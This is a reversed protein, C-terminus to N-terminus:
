LSWEQGRQEDRPAASENAPALITTANLNAPQVFGGAELRKHMAVMLANFAEFLDGFEDRRQHSIRFDLDGGAADRLALRLQRVPGLIWKTAAITLGAVLVLTLLGLGIMMIRSILAAQDLATRLVSVEVAGVHHGAYEIPRTFRFSQAGDSTRMTTVTVETSGSEIRRGTPELYRAGVLDPTSAAQIVGEHDVILMQTVNPDEAAAMVFARTPLWDRQEPPLGVNEAATLAANSAVFSAISAGSTLAVQEMAAYQRDLVFGIGLALVAATIATTLLAARAPLPLRRKGGDAQTNEFAAKERQLAELLAAGSAFRKEPRKSLLKEIIFRLGAPCEPSVQIPAPDQQTIQLALTAASAGNFAPGGTILEYLLAGVSFLDSRGDLERGLAQEPSMYRPTGVVQGIQTRVMEAAQTETCQEIRAIGFDLIKLTRGDKGLMINSPKIDRHVIGQAHAYRLAEALQCGIDIVEGIPFQGKQEAIQDLPAGDLLEMAIYPFGEIEGVDYITVINPHSLAGAARAERLFRSAFQANRCYERKLVKIALVRNIGPDYARYVNAMAGQGIRAQIQYRGVLKM